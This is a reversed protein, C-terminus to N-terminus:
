QHVTVSTVTVTLFQGKNKSMGDAGLEPFSDSQKNTIEHDNGDKWDIKVKAGADMQVVWEMDVKVSTHATKNQDNLYFTHAPASVQLYWPEYTADAVTGDISLPKSRWTAGDLTVKDNAFEAPETGGSINAPEFVGRFRLKVDYSTGPTGGITVEKFDEYPNIKNHICTDGSINGCVDDLHLGDVVKVIAMLDTGGGGTGGMPTSGGTTSGGTTSGGTTSGGTTSGGSPGTGGVTGAGGTPGSGGSGASTASGATSGSGATPVTTNGGSSSTGATPGVMGNGGSGGTGTVDPADLGCGFTLVAVISLYLPRM